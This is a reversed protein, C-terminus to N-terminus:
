EWPHGEGAFLCEGQEVVLKISGGFFRRGPFRVGVLEDVSDGGVLSSESGGAFDDDVRFHPTHGNCLFPHVKRKPVLACAQGQDGDLHVVNRTGTHRQVKRIERLRRRPM